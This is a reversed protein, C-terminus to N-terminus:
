HMPRDYGRGPLAPAALYLWDIVTAAVIAALGLRVSLGVIFLAGFAVLVVLPRVNVTIRM